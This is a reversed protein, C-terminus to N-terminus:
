DREHNINDVPLIWANFNNGDSFFIPLDPRTLTVSFSAITQGLRDCIAGLWVICDLISYFSVVTLASTAIM